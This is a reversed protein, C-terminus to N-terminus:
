SRLGARGLGRAGGAGPLGPPRHGRVGGGLAPGERVAGAPPWTGRRRPRGQGAREEQGLVAGALFGSAGRSVLFLSSDIHRLDGSTAADTRSTCILHDTHWNGRDAPRSSAREHRHSRAHMKSAYRQVPQCIKSRSREFATM